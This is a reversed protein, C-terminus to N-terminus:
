MKLTKKALDVVEIAQAKSTKGTEYFCSPHEGDPLPFAYVQDFYDAGEICPDGENIAYGWKHLTGTIGAQSMEAYFATPTKEDFFVLHM